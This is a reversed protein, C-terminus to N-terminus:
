SNAKQEDTPGVDGTWRSIKDREPSRVHILSYLTLLSNIGM